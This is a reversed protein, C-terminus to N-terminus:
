RGCRHPTSWSCWHWTCCRSPSSSGCPARLALLAGARLRRLARDALVAAGAQLDAFGTLVSLAGLLVIFTYAGKQLANHKGQPPHEQRLRLYYLQMEWAPRIDRPRFLLSRWEGSFSWTALYLSGPSSSRGPWRSIGTSGAPSGAEWGPGARSLRPGAFPNPGLYPGGRLGFRSYAGYIQLGSAIMGVLLVANAWHCLRVLWHHRRVPVAPRTLEAPAANGVLSSM